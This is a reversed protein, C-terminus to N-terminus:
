NKSSKLRAPNLQKKELKNILMEAITKTLWLIFLISYHKFFHLKSWSKFPFCAFSTTLVLLFYVYQCLM